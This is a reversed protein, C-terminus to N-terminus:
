ESFSARKSKSWNAFYNEFQLQVKRIDNNQNSDSIKITVDVSFPRRCGSATKKKKRKKKM